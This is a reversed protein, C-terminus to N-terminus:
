DEKIMTIFHASETAFSDRIVFGLKEYLHIARKNFTAVSLRIPIGAHNQKIDNIIFSCFEYGYGKGTYTPNMGIGMDICNEDYVGYQKGIPIRAAEGTCFFGFVKGKEDLVIWHGGDLREKIGEETIENNYFDYTWGITEKALSETMNTIKMNMILGM